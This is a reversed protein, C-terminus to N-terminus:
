FVISIQEGGGPSNKIAKITFNVYRKVLISEEDSLRLSIAM